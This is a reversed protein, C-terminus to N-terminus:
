KSNTIRFDSVLESPGWSKLRIMKGSAPRSLVIGNAATTYGPDYLFINIGKQSDDPLYIGGKIDATKGNKFKSIFTGGPPILYYGESDRNTSIYIGPQFYYTEDGMLAHATWSIERELIFSVSPISRDATSVCGSLLAAILLCLIYKM